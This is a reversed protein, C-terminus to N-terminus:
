KPTNPTIQLIIHTNKKNTQKNKQIKQFFQFKITCFLQSKKLNFFCFFALVNGSEGFGELNEGFFELNEDFCELNEGFCEL